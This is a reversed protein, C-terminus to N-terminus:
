RGLATRLANLYASPARRRAGALADALAEGARDHIGTGHGVLIRDPDIGALPRRPPIPRLMPHVGLRENAARFFQNTGVAEPVILTSGDFLAVEQWPPLSANRVRIAEFDTDALRPGFREVPAELDAEVGDMWEPIWVAVDHRNAVAACDRTHRDLCCVVGAVTGLDSLLDDLAEPDTSDVPDFVWVDPRDEREENSVTVAHSAREMAEEPYALWGVGGEFRDIVHLDSRDDATESGDRADSDFDPDSDSLTM